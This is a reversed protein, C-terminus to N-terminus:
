IGELGLERLAQLHGEISNEGDYVVAKWTETAEMIEGPKLTKYPAHVELELVGVEPDDPDSELYLEVQGQDPHISDRPQQPFEILFLQDESFAAIWGAAPEIFAKAKNKVGRNFDFLGLKRKHPDASAQAEMEPFEEMRLDSDFDKVPVYVRTHAPVRTNFWIDWQVPEDRVNVAKVRHTLANDELTFQKTLQLGTIPSKPSVLTASTKSAERLQYESLVTYPDPPWVASQARREPNANQQEWWQGQPGPWIIHGFYPIFGADASVAPAPQEHVAAGVKLLNAKGAVSFGLGRGGLAPTFRYSLKDNALTHVTPQNQDAQAATTSLLGALAIAALTHRDIRNIRGMRSKEMKKEWSKRKNADQIRHPAEPPQKNNPHKNGRWVSSSIISKAGFPVAVM